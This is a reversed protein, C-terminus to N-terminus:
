PDPTRGDLVDRVVRAVVSPRIPKDLLAVVGANRAEIHIQEDAWGTCLIVPIRFHERVQLALDIGSRDGMRHDTVIVSPLVAAARMRDIAEEASSAVEVDYGRSALGHEIRALFGATGLGEREHLIEYAASTAPQTQPDVELIEDEGAALFARGLTLLDAESIGTGEAVSSVVMVNGSEGDPFEFIAVAAAGSSRRLAKAIVHLAGAHVGEEEDFLLLIQGLLEEDSIGTDSV